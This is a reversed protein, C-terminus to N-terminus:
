FSKLLTPILIGVSHITFPLHCSTFLLINYICSKMKVSHNPLLSAICSSLGADSIPVLHASIPSKWDVPSMSLVVERRTLVCSQQAPSQFLASLDKAHELKRWLKLFWVSRFDISIDLIAWSFYESINSMPHNQTWEKSINILQQFEIFSVCTQSFDASCETLYSTSETTEFYYQFWCLSCSASHVDTHHATHDFHHRWFLPPLSLILFVISIITILGQYHLPGLCVVQLLQATLFPASNPSPLHLRLLNWLSFFQISM